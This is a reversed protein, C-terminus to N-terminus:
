VEDCCLIHKSAGRANTIWELYNMHDIYSDFERRTYRDVPVTIFPEIAKLGEEGFINIPTQDITQPAFHHSTQKDRDIFPYEDGSMIVVGNNQLTLVKM